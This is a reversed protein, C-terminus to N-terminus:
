AVKLFPYQSIDLFRSSIFSSSSRLLGRLYVPLFGKRGPIAPKAAGRATRGAPLGDGPFVAPCSNRSSSFPRGM